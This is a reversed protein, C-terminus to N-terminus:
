IITGRFVSRILEVQEEVKENEQIDERMVDTILHVDWGLEERIIKEIGRSEKEILTCAFPSNFILRINNKDREWSEAKDLGAAQSMSSKRVAKLIKEKLEPLPIAPPAKKEQPAERKPQEAEKLPVAGSPMDGSLSPAQPVM